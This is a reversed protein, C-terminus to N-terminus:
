DGFLVDAVAHGTEAGAHTTWVMAPVHAQEWTV